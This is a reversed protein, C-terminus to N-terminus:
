LLTVIGALSHQEIYTRILDLAEERRDTEFFNIHHLEDEDDIHIIDTYGGSILSGKLSIIKREHEKKLEKSIRLRIMKDM